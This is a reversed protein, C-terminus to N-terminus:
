LIVKIQWFLRSEFCSQASVGTSQLVPYEQPRYSMSHFGSGNSVRGLTAITHMTLRSKTRPNVHFMRGFFLGVLVHISLPLVFSTPSMPPSLNHRSTFCYVKYQGVEYQSSRGVATSLNSEYALNTDCNITNGSDNNNDYLVCPGHHSDDGSSVCFVTTANVAM